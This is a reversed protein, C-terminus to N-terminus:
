RGSFRDKAVGSCNMVNPDFSILADWAYLDTVNEICLNVTFDQGVLVDLEPPSIYVRTTIQSSTPIVFSTLTTSLL